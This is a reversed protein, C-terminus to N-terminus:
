LGTMMIFKKFRLGRLNVSRTFIYRRLGPKQLHELILTQKEQITSILLSHVGTVRYVEVCVLRSVNSGPPLIRNIQRSANDGGRYEIGMNVVDAPTIFHVPFIQEGVCWGCAIDVFSGVPKIEFETNPPLYLAHPLGSFVDKRGNSTEWIGASTEALFNGGLLVFLYENIGTDGVWKQGTKMARAMFNLNSWGADSSSITQYIENDPSPKALLPCNKDRNM